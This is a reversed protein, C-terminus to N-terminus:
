NDEMRSLKAHPSQLPLLCPPPPLVRHCPRSVFPQQPSLTTHSTTPPLLLECSTMDDGMVAEMFLVFNTQSTLSPNKANSLYTSVLYQARFQDQSAYALSVDRLLRSERVFTDERVEDVSTFCNEILEDRLLEIAFTDEESNEKGNVAEYLETDLARTVRPWFSCRQEMGVLFEDEMAQLLGTQDLETLKHGFETVATSLAQLSARSVLSRANDFELLAISEQLAVDIVEGVTLEEIVFAPLSHKLSTSHLFLMPDFHVATRHMVYIYEASLTEYLRLFTKGRPNYLASILVSVGIALAWPGLVVSEAEEEAALLLKTGRELVTQLLFIDDKTIALLLAGFLSVISGKQSSVLSSTRTLNGSEIAEYILTDMRSTEPDDVM